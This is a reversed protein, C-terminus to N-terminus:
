FKASYNYEPFGWKTWLILVMELMVTKSHLLSIAFATVSLM